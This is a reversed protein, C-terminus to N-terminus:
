RNNLFLFYFCVGRVPTAGVSLDLPGQEDANRRTTKPAVFGLPALKAGFQARGGALMAEILEDLSIVPKDDKDLLKVFPKLSAPAWEGLQKFTDLKLAALLTKQLTSDSAPLNLALVPVLPIAAIQAVASDLGNALSRVYFM